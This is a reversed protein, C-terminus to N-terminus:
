KLCSNNHGMSVNERGKVCDRFIALVLPLMQSEICVNVIKEDLIYCRIDLRAVPLAASPWNRLFFVNPDTQSRRSSTPSNLCLPHHVDSLLWRGWGMFTAALVSCSCSRQLLTFRISVLLGVLVWVRLCPLLIKYLDSRSICKAIRLCISGGDLALDQTHGFVRYSIEGGENQDVGCFGFALILSLLSRLSLDLIIHCLAIPIKIQCIAFAYFWM